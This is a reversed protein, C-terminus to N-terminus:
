HYLDNARILKHLSENTRILLSGLDNARIVWAFSDNARIFRPYIYLTKLRGMCSNFLYCGDLDIKHTNKWAENDM